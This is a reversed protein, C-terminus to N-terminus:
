EAHSNKEYVELSYPQNSELCTYLIAIMKKGLKRYRTASGDGSEKLKALYKRQWPANVESLCAMARSWLYASHRAKSNCSRRKTVTKKVPRRAKKKAGGGPPRGDHGGSSLTVPSQGFYACAEAKCAFNDAPIKGFFAAMRPALREGLGPLSRYIEANPLENFYATIEGQCQALAEQVALLQRVLSRLKEAHVALLKSGLPLPAAEEHMEVFAAIVRKSRVHNERLHRAVEGGPAPQLPDFKLLYHSYARTDLKDGVMAELEPCFQSIQARIRNKFRTQDAINEDETLILERLCLIDEDREGDIRLKHHKAALHDCLLHSDHPDGKGTGSGDLEILQRTKSPNFPYLTIWGATALVSTASGRNAEIILHVQRGARHTDLRALFDGFGAASNAFYGEDLVEGASDKLVFYHDHRAWDFGCFLEPGEPPRTTKQRERTKNM